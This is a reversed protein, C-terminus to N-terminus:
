SRKFVFGKEQLCSFNNLAWVSRTRAGAEEPQLQAVNMSFHLSFGLWVGLAWVAHLPGPVGRPCPHGARSPLSMEQVQLSILHSRSPAHLGALSGVVRMPIQGLSKDWLGFGLQKSLSPPSLIQPLADGVEPPEEPSIPPTRGVHTVGWVCSVGFPPIDGDVKAKPVWPSFATPAKVVEKGEM